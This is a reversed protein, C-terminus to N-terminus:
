REFEVSGARQPNIMLLLTPLETTRWLTARFIRWLMAASKVESGVPDSNTTRANGAEVLVSRCDSTASKTVLNIFFALWRFM